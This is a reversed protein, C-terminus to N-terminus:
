EVVYLQMEEPQVLVQHDLQLFWIWAGEQFTKLVAIKPMLYDELLSNVIKNIYLIKIKLCVYNIQVSQLILYNVLLISKLNLNKKNTLISSNAVENTQIIIIWNFYNGDCVTEWSYLMHM